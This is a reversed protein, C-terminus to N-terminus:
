CLRVAATPDPGPVEAAGTLATTFPRGGDEAFAGMSLVLAAVLGVCVGILFTRRRM